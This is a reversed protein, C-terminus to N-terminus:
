EGRRIKQYGDESIGAKWYVTAHLEERSLGLEENAFIRAERVMNEEGAIWVYRTTNAPNPLMVNQITKLLLDSREATQGERSLWNIQVASNTKIEFADAANEVELLAVGKTEAPLAELMAAIAPLATDDGAFLYWAAPKFTKGPKIGIGLYDGMVANSAWASAPGNDGHMVFEVDLIGNTHDIRRVTYTRVFPRTNEDPWVARGTSMDPSVPPTNKDRPIFIKFHAGPALPGLDKLQEHQLSICKLHASTDRIACVQTNMFVSKRKIETSPQM